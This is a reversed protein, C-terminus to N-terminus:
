RRNPRASPGAAAISEINPIDRYQQKAEHLRTMWKVAAEDARNRSELALDKVLAAHARYYSREADAAYRRLLDFINNTKESMRNVIRAEPNTEDVGELLLQLAITEYRRVRELRWRSEAMQKLLFKQHCTVPKFEAALQEGLEAFAVADEHPLVIFGSSLGHSTANQSSATKGEPTKPGTSRKANQRNARMQRTTTM